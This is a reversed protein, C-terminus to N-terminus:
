DFSKCSHVLPNKIVGHIKCQFSRKGLPGTSEVNTSGLNCNICRRDEKITSEKWWQKLRAIIINM